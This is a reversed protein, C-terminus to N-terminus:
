HWATEHQREMQQQEFAELDDVFREKLIKLAELAMEPKAYYMVRVLDGSKLRNLINKTNAIQNPLIGGDNQIWMWNVFFDAEDAM